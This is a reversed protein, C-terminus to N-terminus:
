KRKGKTAALENFIYDNMGQAPATSDDPPPMSSPIDGTNIPNTSKKKGPAQGNDPSYANDADDFMRNLGHWKKAIGYLVEPTQGHTEFYSQFGQNGQMASVFEPSVTEEYDENDSIFSKEQSVWVERRTSDGVMNSIQDVTPIKSNVAELIVDLAKKHADAPNEFYDDDDFVAAIQDKFDDLKKTDEVAEQETLKGQMEEITARAQALAESQENGWKQTDLLRAEADENSSTSKQGEGPVDPSPEEEEEEMDTFLSDTSVPEPQEEEVPEEEGQATKEAM